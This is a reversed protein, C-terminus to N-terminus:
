DSGLARFEGTEKVVVPFGEVRSPIQATLEQTMEAALIKICPQGELEGIATGVVGPISMWEDTHEELVQEITKAGMLEQEGQNHPGMEACGLMPWNLAIIGVSLIAIRLTTRSAGTRMTDIM